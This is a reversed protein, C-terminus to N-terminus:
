ASPKNLFAVLASLSASLAAAVAVAVPAVQGSAALSATFVAVMTAMASVAFIIDARSMRREKMKLEVKIGTIVANPPISPPFEISYVFYEEAEAM